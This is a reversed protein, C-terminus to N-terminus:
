ETAGQTALKDKLWRAANLEGDRWVLDYYHEADRPPLAALRGAMAALDVTEQRGAECRALMESASPGGPEIQLDPPLARLVAAEPGSALMESLLTGGQRLRGALTIGQRATALALEQDGSAVASRMIRDLHDALKAMEMAGAQSDRFLAVMRAAAPSYDAARYMRETETRTALSYAEFGPKTTAEALAALGEQARGDKFLELALLYDGAANDPETRRFMELSARRVDEREDTLALALLVQPNASDKQVAERLLEPGSVLNSAAVLSSVARNREALYAEIQQRTLKPLDWRDFMALAEALTVQSASQAGGSQRAGGDGTRGGREASHLRGPAATTGGENQVAPERLTWWVGAGILGVGLLLALATRRSGASRGDKMTRAVARLMDRAFVVGAEGDLVVGEPASQVVVVGGRDEAASGPFSPFSPNSM